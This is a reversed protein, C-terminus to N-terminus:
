ISSKFKTNSKINCIFPNCSSYIENMVNDINGGIRSTSRLKNRWYVPNAVVGLVTANNDYVAEQLSMDDRDDSDAFLVIFRKANDRWNDENSTSRLAYAYSESLDGGYNTRLSLVVKEIQNTDYSFDHVLAYPLDTITGYPYTPHDEVISVAFRVDEYKSALNTIINLIYYRVDDILGSMSASTDVLFMLDIKECDKNESLVSTREPLEPEAAIVSTDLPFLMPYDAHALSALGLIISCLTKKM